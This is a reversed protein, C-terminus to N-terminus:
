KRVSSVKCQKATMAYRLDAQEDQPLDLHVGGCRVTGLNSTPHVDVSDQPLIFYYISGVWVERNM